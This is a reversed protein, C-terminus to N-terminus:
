FFIHITFFQSNKTNRKVFVNKSPYIKKAFGLLQPGVKRRKRKKGREKKEKKEKKKRRIEGRADGIEKRGM